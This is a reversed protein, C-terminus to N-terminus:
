ITEDISQPLRINRLVFNTSKLGAGCALPMLLYCPKGIASAWQGIRTDLRGPSLFDYTVRGTQRTSNEDEPFLCFMLSDCIKKIKKKKSLIYTLRVM